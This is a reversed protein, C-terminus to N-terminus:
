RAPTAPPSPPAAAQSQARRLENIHQNQEALTKAFVHKGTGDAVFYLDDMKLPHLAAKLAALGPNAIPTPPLGKVAYTNYPSDIGLDDHALPRDLPAKGRTIAYIVTPDAQLRMGLRMRNIYVGAVHPREEDRGTEKEVISALIVADEPKAFPLDAGRETWLEAVARSFAREMREIMASRKDGLSFFYTEPMLSGEAPVSEPGGELEPIANVIAVIEASTLGEPITLRHRVTKGSALLDAVGEPTIAAEFEYEGAKLRHVDGTVEADLLFISPHALVGEAGLTRAIDVAGSGRPLVITRKEPLPGPTTWDRWAWLAFGGASAVLLLFVVVLRAGSRWAM